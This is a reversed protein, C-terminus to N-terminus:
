SPPGPLIDLARETWPQLVQELQGSVQLRSGRGYTRILSVMFATSLLAEPRQELLAIVQLLIERTIDAGGRQEIVVFDLKGKVLNRIDALKIYRSEICDYLRRNPYKKILRSSSM